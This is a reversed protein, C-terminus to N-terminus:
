KDIIKSFHLYNKALKKLCTSIVLLEFTKAVNLLNSKINRFHIAINQM